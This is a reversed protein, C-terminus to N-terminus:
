VDHCDGLDDIGSGELCRYHEWTGSGFADQTADHFVEIGEAGPETRYYSVVPDGETTSSRVVVEAARGERLAEAFCEVEPGSPATHAVEVTGCSPLPTREEFASAPGEGAFGVLAWAVVAGLAGRYARM